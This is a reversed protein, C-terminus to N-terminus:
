RKRLHYGCSWSNRFPGQVTDFAFSVLSYRANSFSPPLVELNTVRLCYGIQKAERNSRCWISVLDVSTNQTTEPFIRFIFVLSVVSKAIPNHPDHTATTAIDQLGEEAGEASGEGAGLNDAILWALGGAPTNPGATVAVVWIVCASKVM